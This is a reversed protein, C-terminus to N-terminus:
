QWGRIFRGVMRLPETLKWSLSNLLQDRQAILNDREVKLTGIQVEIKGALNSKEAALRANDAILREIEGALNDKEAALRANDAILRDTDAILRDRDAILREIEGVLNDKEAALKANEMIFGNREGILKHKESNIKNYEAQSYEFKKYIRSTMGRLHYAVQISVTDKKDYGLLNMWDGHFLRFLDLDEGKIEQDKKTTGERFFKPNIKHFQEFDNKWHGSPTLGLFDSLRKIEKESDSLLSEYKVLFTNPRELPNWADLHGGWSGFRVYGAIIDALPCEINNFDKLYHL